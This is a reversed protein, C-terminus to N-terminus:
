VLLLIWNGPLQLCMTFFLNLQLSLALWFRFRIAFSIIFLDLFFGLSSCLHLICPSHLDACCCFMIILESCLVAFLIRVLLFTLSSTFIYVCLHLTSSNHPLYPEFSITRIKTPFLCFKLPLWVFTEHITNFYNFIQQVPQCFLLCQEICHVPLCFTTFRSQNGTNSAKFKLVHMKSSPMNSLLLCIQLISCNAWHSQAVFFRVYLKCFWLFWSMISKIFSSAEPSQECWWSNLKTPECYEISTTELVSWLRNIKNIKAHNSQLSCQADAVNSFEPLMFSPTIVAAKASDSHLSYNWLTLVPRAPICLVFKNYM